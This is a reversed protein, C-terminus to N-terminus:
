TNNHVMNFTGIIILYFRGYYVTNWWIKKAIFNSNEEKRAFEMEIFNIRKQCFGFCYPFESLGFSFERKRPHFKMSLPFNESKSLFFNASIGHIVTSKIELDSSM